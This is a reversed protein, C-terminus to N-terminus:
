QEPQKDMSILEAVLNASLTFEKTQQRQSSCKLVFEFSGSQNLIEVLDKITNLM